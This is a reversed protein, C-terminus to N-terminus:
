PLTIRASGGLTGGNYVGALSQIARAGPAGVSPPFRVTVTSSGGAPIDPVSLPLSTTASISGIKASTLQVATAPSGGSNAITVTVVVEQTNTDRALTRTITLTPPGASAAVNISVSKQASTFNTTDTPTFTVSLTQGNGVPLVTGAPPNYVFTGPVSATANLQPSSLATGFIVDAPNSWTITPTTATVALNASASNGTGGNTSTVSGTTNTYSGSSAGSVTVSFQCQSSTAVTGGSLAISNGGTITLVSGAGCLNNTTGNVVTLGAPLVDTFAVGAEAVTNTGPNGITFTL